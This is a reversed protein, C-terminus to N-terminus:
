FLGYLASVVCCCVHACVNCGLTFPKGRVKIRNGGLNLSHLSTLPDIALLIQKVGEQMGTCCASMTCAM